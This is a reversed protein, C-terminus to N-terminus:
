NKIIKFTKIVTKDDSIKLFYTAPNLNTMPITTEKSNIQKNIILRGDLDRLQYNLIEYNETEIKLKVFENAPNPYVVMSLIIDKHSDIGDIFIKYPHQIGQAASGTTGVITTYSVQGISYSASGGNGSANGSATLVAEQSQLGTLSFLFLVMLLLTKNKM